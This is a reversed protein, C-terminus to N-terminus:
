KFYRETFKDLMAAYEGGNLFMTEIHRAGETFLCDKEGSHLEYARLANEFPVTPDDTGHVFLMPLSSEALQALADACNPDYGASRINIRRLLGYFAGLQASLIDRASVFGSDEVAFKVVSPARSCLQMVSAGGLSFGHMVVQIDQGFEDQLFDLWKLCDQSEFLGYGFREGGSFGSATNDPAFVDFGRSHYYEFLMGATEAHESHYGHVIFAIRKSFKSGCPYYFGLLEEGRASNIAYCLHVRENLRQAREDRWIYYEPLHTKKDLVAELLPPRRRAFTYKYVDWVALPPLVAAAFWLKKM